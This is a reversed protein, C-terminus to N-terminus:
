YGLFALYANFIKAEFQAGQDTTLFRPAGFRAVWHEQFARLVTSAEIIKLSVAKTWRSFRDIITSLGLLIWTSTVFVTTLLRLNSPSMRSTALSKRKNAIPALKVGSKPIDICQLGCTGRGSCLQTTVKSSPHSLSHFLDFVKKRLTKPVYPRIINGTLDCYLHNHNHGFEISKLILSHNSSELLEKLETDHQQHQVLELM